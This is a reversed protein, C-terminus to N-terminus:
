PRGMRKRIEAIRKQMEIETIKLKGRAYDWRLDSEELSIQRLRRKSGKGM